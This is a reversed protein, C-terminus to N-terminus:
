WDLRLNLGDSTVGGSVNSNLKQFKVMEYFEKLFFRDAEFGVGDFSLEKEPIVITEQKPADSQAEPGGRGEEAASSVAIILSLVLSFVFAALAVSRYGAFLKM